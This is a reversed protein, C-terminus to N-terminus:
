RPPARCRPPPWWQLRDSGDELLLERCEGRVTVTVKECESDVGITVRAYGDRVVVETAEWTVGTNQAERLGVVAEVIGGCEVEGYVDEPDMAGIALTGGTVTPM